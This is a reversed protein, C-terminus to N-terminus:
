YQLAPGGEPGVAYWGPQQPPVYLVYGADESMNVRFVDVHTIEQGLADYVVGTEVPLDDGPQTTVGRTWALGRSTVRIGAWEVPEGVGIRKPSAAVENVVAVREAIARYTYDSVWVPACYSMFDVYESPDKLKQGFMDYGWAGIGAGEHPFEPDGDVGCPSHPRGQNHGLEHVFTEASVDDGYGVGIGARSSVYWPSVDTLEWAVGTTGEFNCYDNFSEAPKILGFYYIDDAPNDEARKAAVRNHIVSLNIKTGTAQSDYPTTVFSEVGTIPYQALLADTYLKLVEPSTDPLRGDHLLPVFGVKVVGTKRAGLVQAELEPIRVIGATASPAAACEVLEM